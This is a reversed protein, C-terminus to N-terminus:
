AIDLMLWSLGEQSIPVAVTLARVDHTHARVYGVYVWQKIVEASSNADGSGVTDNSLKYLIV